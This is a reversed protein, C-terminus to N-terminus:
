DIGSIIASFISGIYSFLDAFSINFVCLTAIFLVGTSLIRTAVKGVLKVCIACVSAGIIGGMQSNYSNSIFKVFNTFLSFDNGIFSYVCVSALGMLAIGRYILKKTKVKKESAIMYIGVIIFTIPLVYVAYGFLGKSVVKFIDALQGVNSFQLFVLLMLGIVVIFGGLMDDSITKKALNKSKTTKGKTVVKKRGM